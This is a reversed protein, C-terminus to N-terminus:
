PFTFIVNGHSQPRPKLFIGSVALSTLIKSQSLNNYRSRLPVGRIFLLSEFVSENSRKSFLEAFVICCIRHKAHAAHHCEAYIAISNHQM